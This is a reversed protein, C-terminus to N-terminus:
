VKESKKIDRKRIGWNLGYQKNMLKVWQLGTRKDPHQSRIFLDEGLIPKFKIVKKKAM